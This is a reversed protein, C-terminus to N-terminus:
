PFCQKHLANRGGDSVKCGERPNELPEPCAPFAQTSNGETGQTTAANSKKGLIAKHRHQQILKVNKELETFFTRPSKIPIANFRYIKKPLIAMKVINQVINMFM